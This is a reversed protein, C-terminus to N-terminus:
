TSQRVARAVHTGSAILEHPELVFQGEVRHQRPIGDLDTEYLRMITIREVGGIGLVIPRLEGASLPRGWAWGRGTGARDGTVANPDGGIFPNLYVALADCIRRQVDVTDAAPDVEVEVAATVVRLAVPSVHVSTGILCRDELEARVEELLDDDAVLERPRPATRRTLAPLVHVVVAEGPRPRVCRARVVLPSELAISEFDERTVARYRTRLEDVLRLRATDYPEVEVGGRAPEPNTVGAVGAISTRLVNLRRREVNGLPGGGHRYGTMLLKAGKPPVAGLQKWGAQVRIAPGLQIEGTAPEFRFVRDDADYGAFSDCRDWREYYLQERDSVELHEDPGLKLAPQHLLSFRQGPTGDSIGLVESDAVTAHTADALVGIADVSIQELRPPTVYRDEGPPRDVLRCRLWYLERGGVSTPACSKPLALETTGLPYNFGGTTESLQDVAAKWRGDRRPVEWTVPPLDPDIGAGAAEVARVHVQVLLREPSHEFGLYLADGARPIASFADEARMYAVGDTIAAATLTGSRELMVAALRLVPVTADASVQFVVAPHEDDPVTAVEAGKPIVVPETVPPEALRFRLHGHAATPPRREVDLLELLKWHMREPIRNVRYLLVDTMWAFQDILTMGPDSVNHDTWEPCRRGVRTRAEDVLDQYNRPDLRVRPLGLEGPDRKVEPASM